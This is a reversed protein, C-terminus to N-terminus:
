PKGGKEFPKGAAKVGFAGILLMSIPAGLDCDSQMFVQALLLVSAVVLAFMSMIRTSSLKGHDDSFLERLMVAM